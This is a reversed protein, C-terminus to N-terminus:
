INKINRAKYDSGTNEVTYEVNDGAHLFTLFSIDKKYVIADKCNEGEMLAIGKPVSYLNVIGRM